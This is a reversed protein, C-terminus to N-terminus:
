NLIMAKLLKRRNALIDVFIDYTIKNKGVYFEEEEITHESLVISNNMRATRVLKPEINIQHVFHIETNDENVIKKSLWNDKCLTCIFLSTETTTVTAEDESVVTAIAYTNCCKCKLYKDHM